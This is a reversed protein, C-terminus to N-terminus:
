RRAGLRIEVERLRREQEETQREVVDLRPALSSRQNLVEWQKSQSLYISELRQDLSRSWLGFALGGLTVVLGCAGLAVLRWSPGTEEEPEEDRMYSEGHEKGPM